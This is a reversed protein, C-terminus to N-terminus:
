LKEIMLLKVGTFYDLVILTVILFCIILILLASIVSRRKRRQKKEEKQDLYYRYEYTEKVPSSELLKHFLLSKRLGYDELKIAKEACTAGLEKFYRLYKNRQFIM